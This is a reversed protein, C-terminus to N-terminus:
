ILPKSQVACMSPDVNGRYKISLADRVVTYDVSLLYTLHHIYSLLSSLFILLLAYTKCWIFYLLGFCSFRPEFSFAAFLEVSFAAFM